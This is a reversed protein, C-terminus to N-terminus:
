MIRLGPTCRRYSKQVTVFVMLFSGDPKTPATSKCSERSHNYVDFMTLSSRDACWRHPSLIACLKSMQGPILDERMVDTM